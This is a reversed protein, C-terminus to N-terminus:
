PVIKNFAMEMDKQVTPDYNECLALGASTHPLFINCLGVKFSKLEERIPYMIEDTILYCGKKRSKLNFSRQFWASSM